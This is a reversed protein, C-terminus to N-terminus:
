GTYFVTQYSLARLRGQRELNARAASRVNAVCRGKNPGLRVKQKERLPRQRAVELLTRLQDLPLARRKVVTDGVAMTGRELRNFELKGKKVCWNGFGLVAQRHTNKTRASTPQGDSKIM